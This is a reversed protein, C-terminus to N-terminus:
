FRSNLSELIDYEMGDVDVTLFDIVRGENHWMLLDSVTYAKKKAERGVNRDSVNAYLFVSNPDEEVAQKSPQEIRDVGLM